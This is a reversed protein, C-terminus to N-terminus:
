SLQLAQDSWKVAFSKWVAIGAVLTAVIGVVIQIWSLLGDSSKKVLIAWTSFHTTAVRLSKDTEDFATDSFTWEGTDENYYALVLNEPADDADAIDEDSYKVTVTVPRSFSAIAIGRADRVELAFCSSGIRYGKPAKPATSPSIELIALTSEGSFVNAPLTAAIRGDATQISGGQIPVRNLSVASGVVIYDTKMETISEGRSDTVKLSVTYIGAAAYAHSVKGDRPRVTWTVPTTGDGFDWTWSAISGASSDTFQVSEGVLLTAAAASFSAALSSPGTTFSTEASFTSWAGNNDQHRVHWYYTTSYSLIGAPVLMNILNATHTRSDFAPNSYNGSVSSIQWQSAGHTDDANPDSFVSSQLTPTLTMGTAANAPSVNGPRSPSQNTFASTTFNMELGHVTSGGTAKARFYYTSSPSLGSLDFYFLGTSTMSQPTTENSYSESTVGWQFCVTVSAVTGLSILNGNLKASNTGQSTADNTVVAPPVTPVGVTTFSTENSYSSWDRYRDQHRVHWYYTTSYNLTTSPIAITTLSSRDRRSDFLPNSYEGSSTTIQWQSAAHSDFLDHDSFGSSQLTPTLSVGTAGDSPSINSPADPSAAVAVAPQLLPTLVGFLLIALVACLYLFQKGSM